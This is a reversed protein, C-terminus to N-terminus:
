KQRTKIKNAAEKASLAVEPNDNNLFSEIIPLKDPTAIEKLVRLASRQVDADTSKELIDIVDGQIETGLTEMKDEWTTPNVQWMEILLPKAEPMNSKLMYDIVQTPMGQRATRLNTIVYGIVQQVSKDDPKAWHTLGKILSLLYDIDFGWPEGIRQMFAQVISSQMTPNISSTSLRDAAAAIRKMDLSRLEKINSAYYAVHREDELIASDDPMTIIQRNFALEVLGTEANSKKVTGLSSIVKTFDEFNLKSPNVVILRATTNARPYILPTNATISMRKIYNLIQPQSIDDIGDIWVGYVNEQGANHRASILPEIDAASMEYEIKITTEVMDSQPETDVLEGQLRKISPDMEPPMFVPFLFVLTAVLLGFAAMVKKHKHGSFGIFCGVFIGCFGAFIQMKMGEMASLFPVPTTNATYFLSFTLSFCALGVVLMLVRVLSHGEAWEIPAIKVASEASRIEDEPLVFTAVKTFDRANRESTELRDNATIEVNNDCAPCVVSNVKVSNPLKFLTNCNSCILKM